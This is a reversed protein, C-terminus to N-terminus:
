VFSVLRPPSATLEHRKEMSFYIGRDLDISLRELM